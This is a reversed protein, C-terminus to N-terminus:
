SEKFFDLNKSFQEYGMSPGITLYAFNPNEIKYGLDLNIAFHDNTEVNDGDRIGFVGIWFVALRAISTFLSSCNNGHREPLNARM